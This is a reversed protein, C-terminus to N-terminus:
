IHCSMTRIHIPYQIGKMGAPAAAILDCTAADLGIVWLV